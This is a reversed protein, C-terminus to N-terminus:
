IKIEKKWFDELEKTFNKYQNKFSNHDGNM